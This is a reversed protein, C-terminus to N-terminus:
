WFHYAILGTGIILLAIVLKEVNHKEILMRLNHPRTGGVLDHWALPISVDPPLKKHDRNIDKNSDIKIGTNSVLIKNNYGKKKGINLNLNSPLKYIGTGM